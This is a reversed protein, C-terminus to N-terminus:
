YLFVDVVLAAISGLGALLIVRQAPASRLPGMGLVLALVAFAFVGSGTDQWSVPFVPPPADVFFQPADVARLVANWAFPGAFAGVAVAVLTGPRRERGLLFVFVLGAVASLAAGYSITTWALM